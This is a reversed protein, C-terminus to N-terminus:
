WGVELCIMGAVWGGCIGSEAYRARIVGVFVLAPGVLVLSLNGGRGDM